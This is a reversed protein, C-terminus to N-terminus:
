SRKKPALGQRADVRIMSSEDAILSSEGGIPLYLRPQALPM